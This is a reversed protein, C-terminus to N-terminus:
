PSRHDDRPLLQKLHWAQAYLQREAKRRDRAIGLAYVGIIFVIV